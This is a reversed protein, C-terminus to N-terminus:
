FSGSPYYGDMLVGSVGVIDSCRNREEASMGFAEKQRRIESQIYLYQRSNENEVTKLKEELRDITAKVYYRYSKSSAM